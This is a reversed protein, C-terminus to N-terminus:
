SWPPRPNTSYFGRPERNPSPQPSLGHTIGHTTPIQGHTISTESGQSQPNTISFIQTNHNHPMGQIPQATPQYKQHVRTHTPTTIKVSLSILPTKPSIPKLPTTSTRPQTDSAAFFVSNFFYRPAANAATPVVSSSSTAM